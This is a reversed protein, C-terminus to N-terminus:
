RSLVWALLDAASAWWGGSCQYILSRRFLPVSRPTSRRRSHSVGPVRTSTTDGDNESQANASSLSAKIADIPAPQQETLRIRDSPGQKSTIGVDGEPALKLPTPKGSECGIPDALLGFDPMGPLRWGLRQNQHTAVRRWTPGHHAGARERRFAQPQGWAPPQTENLRRIGISFSRAESFPKLRVPIVQAGFWAGLSM